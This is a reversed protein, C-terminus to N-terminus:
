SLVFLGSLLLRWGCLILLLGSLQGSGCGGVGGLLDFTFGASPCVGSVSSGRMIGDLPLAPFCQITSEEYTEKKRRQHALFFSSKYSRAARRGFMEWILRGELDEMTLEEM